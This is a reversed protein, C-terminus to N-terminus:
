PPLSKHNFEATRLSEGSLKTRIITNLIQTSDYGAFPVCHYTQDLKWGYLQKFDIDENSTIYLGKNPNTSYWTFVKEIFSQWQFESPNNDDLFVVDTKDSLM